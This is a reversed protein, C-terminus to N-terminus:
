SIAPVAPELIAEAGCLIPDDDPVAQRGIGAAEAAADLLAAATRIGGSKAWAEEHRLRALFRVIDFSEM